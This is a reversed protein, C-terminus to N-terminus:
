SPIRRWLQHAALGCAVRLAICNDSGSRLFAVLSETKLLVSIAVCALVAVLYPEAHLGRVLVFLWIEVRNVRPVPVLTADGAAFVFAEAASFDCPLPHAGALRELAAAIRELATASYYDGRFEPGDKTRTMTLRYQM